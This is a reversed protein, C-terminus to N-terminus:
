DRSSRELYSKLFYEAKKQILFDPHLSSWKGSRRDFNLVGSGAPLYAKELVFQLAIEDVSKGIVVFRVADCSREM